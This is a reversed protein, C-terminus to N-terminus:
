IACRKYKQIQRMISQEMPSIPSQARSYSYDGIRESVLSLDQGAQHYLSMAWRATIMQLDAPIANYGARFNIWLWPSRSGEGPNKRVAEVYILGSDMDLCYPDGVLDGLMPMYSGGSLITVPTTDILYTSPELGSRGSALNATWGNGGANIGTILDSLNNYTANALNFTMTGANNGGVIRLSLSSNQVSAHASHKTASNTLRVSDVTGNHMSYVQSVPYERLLVPDGTRFSQSYNGIWFNRGCIRKIEVSAANISRELLGNDSDEEPDGLSRSMISKLYGLTILDTSDTSAPAIRIRLDRTFTRGGATQITNLVTYEQDATGNSAWLTTTTTNNSSSGKTLGSPVSNGWTSNSITDTGLLDSYNIQFDLVENARKVFYEGSEDTLNSM